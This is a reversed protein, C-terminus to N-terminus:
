QEIYWKYESFDGLKRVAVPTEGSMTFGLRSWGTSLTEGTLTVTGFNPSNVTDTFYVYTGIETSSEKLSIKKGSSLTIELFGAYLGVQGTQSLYEEEITNSLLNDLELIGDTVTISGANGLNAPNDRGAKAFKYTAVGTEIYLTEDSNYIQHANVDTSTWKAYVKIDAIVVTSATFENLFTGNDQFWGDFRYADKTPNQPLTVTAGSAIGSIPLVSSGGNTEFTVTYTITGGDQDCNIFVMGASFAMILMVLSLFMRKM